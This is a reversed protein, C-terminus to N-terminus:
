NRLLSQGIVCCCMAFVLSVLLVFGEVNLAFSPFAVVRVSGEDFVLSQTQNGCFLSCLLTSEVSLRSDVTHAVVVCFPM